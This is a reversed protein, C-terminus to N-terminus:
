AGPIPEVETAPDGDLAAELRPLLADITYPLSLPSSFGLGNAIDGDVPLYLVRGERVAELRRFAADRELGEQDGYMVVLDADLLDIREPSLDAYFKEGVLDAVEPPPELGLDSFFRARLDQESYVAFGDATQAGFSFTSTELAPLEERAAAVRQEVDAQVEAAEDARGLAHGTARLQDQWPEGFDVFDKSQAVTPAIESLTDHDAKTMGSYIGLILDPRLAAVKEFDIEEAGVLEVQKGGLAEQAWPRKTIDIGAQFQRAGVPVVGLALAFDQDNFGVAVVRQPDAPVETTGFKHTITAAAPAATDPEEDSGCAVLAVALLLPILRKAM